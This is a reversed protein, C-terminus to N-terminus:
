SDLIVNQELRHEDVLIRDVEFREDQHQWSVGSRARRTRM